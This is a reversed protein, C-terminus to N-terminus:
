NKLWIIYKIRNQQEKYAIIESNLLGGGAKVYTSDFGRDQLEKYNLSFSNGKYWGDYIFPNGTHVEYVLLVKDKDYGTYNLSKQVVESFYNGDGYAKGSFQFNGAPRIKLGIELIPIVSTCKTGHILIRTQKNKQNDMWKQFYADEAPKNVEFVAAIRQNTVQKTLYEIEKTIKSESMTIGLVDLITKVEKKVKKKAKADEKGDNSMSVQSAMADLNDQEQVMTKDFNISPLLYSLVNGMKRPIVTYLMTLHDNAEQEFGKKKRDLALLDNIYDQATDVQAQTVSTAKVSYTTSVLNDTYRKMLSMFEEVKNDKIKGLADPAATTTVVETSVFATVDKYGKNVKETYKKNWQNIPYSLVTATSEVRGYKVSFNPSIGDWNMEYYKNSQAASGKGVAVMILKKFMPQGQTISM